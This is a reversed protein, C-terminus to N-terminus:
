KQEDIFALQPIRFDIVKCSSFYKKEGQIFSIEKKEKELLQERLKLYNNLEQIYNKTSLRLIRPSLVCIENGEKSCYIEDEILLVIERRVYSTEFANSVDIRKVNFLDSVVPAQVIKLLQFALSIKEGILPKDWALNEQMDLFVEPLNKPSFFPILPFLYGEQDFAVNKYEALLAIPQRTTYDIHIVGPNTIKVEVEKIVPSDLLKKKAKKVDFQFTLTPKDCSLDLIEALYTSKLAEKRPSTQVIVHIPKELSRQGKRKWSQYGKIAFFTGSNVLFASGFIWFLARSLSLHKKM